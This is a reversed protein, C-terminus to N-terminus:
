LIQIQNTLPGPLSVCYDIRAQSNHFQAIGCLIMDIQVLPIGNDDNIGNEGNIHRKKM